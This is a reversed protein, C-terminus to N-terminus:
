RLEGRLLGMVVVDRYAGFRYDSERRRVEEKFGIKEYVHIARANTAFVELEIRHLNMMDFAFRCLVLMADTGYGGDRYAAEGIDIGLTVGRDEPSARFLSCNGIHVGELTEIAFLSLGFDPGRDDKVSVRRSRSSHPYRANIHQTVEIDNYRRLNNPEDGPERARLRVLRGEFPNTTMPLAQRSGGGSAM